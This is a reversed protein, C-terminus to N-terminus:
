YVKGNIIKHNEFEYKGDDDKTVIGFGTNWNNIRAYDPHLDCMCGISHTSIVKDLGTKETHDSSRHM